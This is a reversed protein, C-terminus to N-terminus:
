LGLPDRATPETRSRRPVPQRFPSSEPLKDGPHVRLLAFALTDVVDKAHRIKNTPSLCSKSAFSIVLVIRRELAYHSVDLISARDAYVRADNKMTM